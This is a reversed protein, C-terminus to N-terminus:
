PKKLARAKAQDQLAKLIDLAQACKDSPVFVHDHHFAAVMNCPISAEGLASAVASTLGVGELSSYVNLTICRMPSSLDLAARRAVELPLIMSLGEAEKFTALAHPTLSAIQAPEAAIAFVYDGPQELPTMGCIMDQASHAIDHM